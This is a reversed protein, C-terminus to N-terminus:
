VTPSGFKLFRARSQTCTAGQNRRTSASARYGGFGAALLIVALRVTFDAPHRSSDPEAILGKRTSNEVMPNFGPPLMPMNGTYPKIVPQSVTSRLVRDAALDDLISDTDQDTRLKTRSVVPRDIRDARFPIVSHESDIKLEVAPPTSPAAPQQPRRAAVLLGDARFRGLSRGM